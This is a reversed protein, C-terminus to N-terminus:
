KRASCPAADRERGQRGQLDLRRQALADGVLHRLLLLRLHAGDGAPKRRERREARAAV